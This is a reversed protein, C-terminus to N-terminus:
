YSDTKTGSASPVSVREWARHKLTRAHEDVRKGNLRRNQKIAMIAEYKQKRCYNLMKSSSYYSDALVNVRFRSKPFMGEFEKLLRLALATKKFFRLEPYKERLKKATRRPLFVEFAGPFVHNGIQVNVSVLCLAWVHKKEKHDWHWAFGEFHQSDKPKEILTDDISIFVPISRTTIIKKVKEGKKKRWKM